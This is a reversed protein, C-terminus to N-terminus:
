VTPTCWVKGDGLCYIDALVTGLYGEWVSNPCQPGFESGDMRCDAIEPAAGDLLWMGQKMNTTDDDDDDDDDDNNTSSNNWWASWLVNRYRWENLSPRCTSDIQCSGLDIGTLVDSDKAPYEACHFLIGLQETRIKQSTMEDDMARTTSSYFLHGHFLDYRSMQVTNGHLKHSEIVAQFTDAFYSELEPGVRFMPENALTCRELKMGPIEDLSYKRPLIWGQNPPQIPIAAAQTLRAATPDPVPGLQQGPLAIGAKGSLLDDLLHKNSADKSTTCPACFCPHISLTSRICCGSWTILWCLSAGFLVRSNM